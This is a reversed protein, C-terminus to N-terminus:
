ETAKKVAEPTIKSITARLERSLVLKADKEWVNLREDFDLKGNEGPWVMKLDRLTQIIPLAAGVTTEYFYHADARRGAQQLARYYEIDGSNAKKNPTIVHIGRSLWDVYRLAIDGNATCDIIAAHPISETNVHDALLGLDTPM